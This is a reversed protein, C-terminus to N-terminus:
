RKVVASDSAANKQLLKQRLEEIKKLAEESKPKILPHQPKKNAM